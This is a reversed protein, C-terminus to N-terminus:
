KSRKSKKCRLVGGSYEIDDFLYPMTKAYQIVTTPSLQLIAALEYVDVENKERIIEAMQNMRGIATTAM